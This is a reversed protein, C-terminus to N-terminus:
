HTTLLNTRLNTTWQSSVKIYDITGTSSYGKSTEEMAYNIFIPHRVLALFIYSYSRDTQVLEVNSIAANKWDGNTGRKPLDAHKKAIYVFVFKFLKMM